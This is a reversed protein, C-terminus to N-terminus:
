CLARGPLCCNQAAVHGKRLFLASIGAVSAFFACRARGARGSWQDSLASFVCSSHEFPGKAINKSPGRGTEARFTWKGDSWIKLVFRSFYGRRPAKFNTERWGPENRSTAFRSSCKPTNALACANKCCCRCNQLREDSCKTFMKCSADVERVAVLMETRQGVRVRKQQAAAAGATRCHEEGRHAVQARVERQEDCAVRAPPRSRFCAPATIIIATARAEGHLAQGSHQEACLLCSPKERHRLLM